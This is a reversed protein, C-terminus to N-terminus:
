CTGRSPSASPRPLESFLAAQKPGTGLFFLMVVGFPVVNSAGLQKYLYNAPRSYFTRGLDICAEFLLIQPAQISNMGYHRYCRPNAAQVRRVRLEVFLVLELLWGFAEPRGALRGVRKGEQVM